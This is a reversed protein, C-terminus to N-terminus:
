ARRLRPGRGGADGPDPLLGPQGSGHPRPSRDRLASGGRHDHPQEVLGRQAPEPGHHEREGGGAALPGRGAGLPGGPEGGDFSVMGSTPFGPGRAVLHRLTQVFLGAGVLLLLTFALQGVVLMRRLRVGGTAGTRERLWDILPVRAARWAPALGCLVGTMVSVVFAFAFMRVDVRSSLNTGGADTPLFSLLGRSVVPAVVLGLAGGLLAIWLADAVMLSTIRRRSAGLALRTRIERGRAVGRALFLSAVNLSALLLLLLTGVMLVQLPQDIQRRLPSHGHGAPAVVLTSALFQARQEASVRPFDARRTDEDLM